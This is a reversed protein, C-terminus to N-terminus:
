MKLGCFCHKVESQEDSQEDIYAALEDFNRSNRAVLIDLDIVLYVIKRQVGNCAYSVLQVKAENIKGMIKGKLSDGLGKRYERVRLRQPNGEKWNLYEKLNGETWDLDDDSKNISKVEMLIGSSGCCGYLDPTPTNEEPIFRVETCGESKLYSYGKSESLTNFLQEYGRHEDRIGVYKIARCKLEQWANADLQQLDQELQEYSAVALPNGLNEEFYVFCNAKNATDSDCYLEYLRPFDRAWVSQM